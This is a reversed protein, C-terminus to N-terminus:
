GPMPRWRGMDLVSRPRDRLAPSTGHSTLSIGGRDPVSFPLTASPVIQDGTYFGSGIVVTQGAYIPADDAIMFSEAYGVKASGLDEDGEVSPDDWYYEVYDGGALAADILARLFKFGNRDQRDIQIKGQQDPRSGHFLVYGDATMVYLYTSGQRWPGAERRLENNLKAFDLGFEAFGEVTWAIAGQVFAKLTERDVVDAATVAPPDPFEDIINEVDSIDQYFDAVLVFYEQALPSTYKVAYSVKPNEDNPDSPDDWAYEFFGGDGMSEAAALMAQVVKVGNDDELDRVDTGDLEPDNGHFWLIGEPLLINLYMNGSNWDGGEERLIDTLAALQNIDTVSSIYDRASLAFAKLTERDVVESATTQTDQAVASPVSFVSALGLVFCFIVMLRITKM